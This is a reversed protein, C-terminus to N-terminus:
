ASHDVDALLDNYGDMADVVFGDAEHAADDFAFIVGIALVDHEHFQDWDGLGFDEILPGALPCSIAGFGSGDRSLRIWWRQGTLGRSVPWSHACAEPRHLQDCCGLIQSGGDTNWTSSGEHRCHARQM